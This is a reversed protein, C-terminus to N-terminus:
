PTSLPPEPQKRSLQSPPLRPPPVLIWNEADTVPTDDVDVGPMLTDLDIVAKLAPADDVDDGCISTAREKVPFMTPAEVVGSILMDIITPSRADTAQADFVDAAASLMVLPMWAAIVPSDPTDPSIITALLMSADILPTDLRGSTSRTIAIFSSADIAPADLVDSAINDRPIGSLADIVPALSVLVGLRFMRLASTADTVPMLLRGSMSITRPPRIWNAAAIAPTDLVDVGDSSIDLCSEADTVTCDPVDDGDRFTVRPKDAAIAHRDSVVPSNFIERDSVALIAPPVAADPSTSTVLANTADIAPTDFRGSISIITDPMTCNIADIVPVLEVDVGLRSMELARAADIVPADLRGSM